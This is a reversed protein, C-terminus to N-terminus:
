KLRWLKNVLIIEEKTRLAQLLNKVKDKKQKETLLEPLKDALLNEFDTRTGTKFKVLYDKILKKCYDDELGKVKIYESQMGTVSAIESSIHYHPKRGEILRKKKLMKAAEETIAQGKQIKDLLVAETLSIDEKKEILLKSYNEDITHGYIELVVKDKSSKSYDPLPFYRRKQEIFMRRIGYGMTDIM